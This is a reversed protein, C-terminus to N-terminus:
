APLFNSTDSDIQKKCDFSEILTSFLLSFVLILSNWITQKKFGPESLSDCLISSIDERLVKTQESGGLFCLSVSCFVIGKCQTKHLIRLNSGTM